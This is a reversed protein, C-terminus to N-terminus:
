KTIIAKARNLSRSDMLKSRLALAGPFGAAYIKFFRKLPHFPKTKGWTKEYIELHRKLLALKEKKSKQSISETQSFIYPDRFVGRGIMVGDVGSAKIRQKAIERSFIDGNGIILTKSHLQNKLRVIKSVEGWHTRGVSLEKATRCHTSVAALDFSFLFKFWPGTNITRNGLRTKVSVPIRGAAGKLTAKIIEGALDPNDILAAGAGKKVVAKEPCGLNIDVGAFGAAALFDAAAAFLEPDQGWIQAILPQEEVSYTLQRVATKDPSFLAQVNTFETFMLDPKGIRVLLRRFASDTAGFMPALCWIPRNLKQWINVM